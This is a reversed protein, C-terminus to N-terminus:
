EYELAQLHSKKKFPFKSLEFYISLFSLPPIYCTRLTEGGLWMAAQSGEEEM